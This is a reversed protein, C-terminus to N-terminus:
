VAQHNINVTLAAKIATVDADSLATSTASIRFQVAFYVADSASHDTWPNFTYAEGDGKNVELFRTFAPDKGDGSTTFTITDETNSAALMFEFNYQYTTDTLQCTVTAGYPVRILNPVILAQKTDSVYGVSPAYAKGKILNVAVCQITHTATQNGCTATIVATGSGVCTVLGGSVTAASANSTSWTVPDTATAPTLAATIRMTDGVLMVTDGSLTIGTCPVDDFAVTGLANVSFDASKIVLAKAM